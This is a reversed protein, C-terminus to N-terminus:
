GIPNWLTSLLLSAISHSLGQRRLKRCVIELEHHYEHQDEKQDAQQNAQQHEPEDVHQHDRRGDPQYNPQHKLAM